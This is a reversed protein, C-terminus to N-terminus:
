VAGPALATWAQDPGMGAALNAKYAQHEANLAAATQAPSILARNHGTGGYHSLGTGPEGVSAFELALAMQAKSLDTTTPNSATVFAKILPRKRSLLYNRFLFEQMKADLNLSTNISLKAVGDKMTGPIMQYRGVAFLRNPNSKSLAQLAMVQSIQMQPFNMTKGASDGAGGRNFAGYGAKGSEKSAILEGLPGGVGSAPAGPNGGPIPGVPGGPSPAAPPDDAKDIMDGLGPTSGLVDTGATIMDARVADLATQLDKGIRQLAVSSKVAVLPPGQDQLYTSYRSM